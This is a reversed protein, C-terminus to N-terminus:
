LVILRVCTRLIINKTHVFPLYNSNLYNDCLHDLPPRQVNAERPQKNRWQPYLYTLESAWWQWFWINIICGIIKLIALLLLNKAMYLRSARCVGPFTADDCIHQGKYSLASHNYSGLHNYILGRWLERVMAMSHCWRSVWHKQTVDDLCGIGMESQVWQGPSGKAEKRRSSPRRATLRQITECQSLSERAHLVVRDSCLGFFSM